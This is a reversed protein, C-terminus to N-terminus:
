IGQCNPRCGITYLMQRNSFLKCTHKNAEMVFVTAAPGKILTNAWEKTKYKEILFPEFQKIINQNYQLEKETVFYFKDSYTCLIEILQQYTKDKPNEILEWYEM